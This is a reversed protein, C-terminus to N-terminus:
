NWRLLSESRALLDQKSVGFPELVTACCEALLEVYKRSDYEKSTEEVLEEVTARREGQSAYNTILYSVSQGARLKMGRGELQNAAGVSLQRRSIYESPDKSLRRRILLDYAPVAHDEIRKASEEFISKGVSGACLRLEEVTGCSALAKLIEGQCRKFYAPTDHRRYEIGRVKVENTGEFCGFYRNAVQTSASMKSPLFVVWKYIGEISLKFGTNSEIEPLLEEYDSRKAGRKSLWLADIIGHIVRFGRNNSTHIAERLTRRAISCVAMHSDIKGFKANRYSLYGFSCVLIWKLAAARENYKKWIQTGRNKQMLRKYEFRKDLPLRLSEAVVGESKTCIKLGLE